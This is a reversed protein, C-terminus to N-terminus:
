KKAIGRYRRAALEIDSQLTRQARKGFAHLVYVADAFDPQRLRLKVIAGPAL